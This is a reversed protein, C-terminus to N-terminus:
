MTFQIGVPLHDSVFLRVFEAARRQRTDNLWDFAYGFWGHQMDLLTNYPGILPPVPAVPAAIVGLMVAVGLQREEREGTGVFLQLRM